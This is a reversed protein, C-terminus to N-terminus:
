HMSQNDYAGWFLLFNLWNKKLLFPFKQGVNSAINDNPSNKDWFFFLFFPNTPFINTQTTLSM